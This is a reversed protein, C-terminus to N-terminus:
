RGGGAMHPAPAAADGGLREHTRPGACDSHSVCAVSGESRASSAGCPRTARRAGNGGGVGRRPAAHVARAEAEGAAACRARKCGATAAYMAAAAAAADASLPLGPCPLVVAAAGPGVRADGHVLGRAAAGGGAWAEAGSRRLLIRAFLANQAQLAVCRADMERALRTMAAVDAELCALRADCAAASRVAGAASRDVGACPTHVEQRPPSSPNAAM